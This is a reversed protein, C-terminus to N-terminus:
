RTAEPLKWIPAILGAGPPPAASPPTKVIVLTFGVNVPIVGALAGTSGVGTSTVTWSVPVPKAALEMALALKDVAAVGLTALFEKGLVLEASVVTYLEGVDKVAVRGADISPCGPCICIVTVLKGGPPPVEAETTKLTREVKDGVIVETVGM